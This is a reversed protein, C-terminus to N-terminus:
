RKADEERKSKAGTKIRLHKLYKNILSIQHKPSTLVWSITAALLESSRFLKWDKSVNVIGLLDNASFFDRLIELLLQEYSPRKATEQNHCYDCLTTLLNDPYEWPETQSLYRKHHIMLTSTSDGCIQCEWHDRELIYLRKQQWRPDLLKQSYHSLQTIM